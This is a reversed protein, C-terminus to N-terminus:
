LGRAEAQAVQGRGGEPGLLHTQRRLAMGAEEQPLGAHTRTLTKAGGVGGLQQWPHGRPGPGFGVTLRVEKAETIREPSSM